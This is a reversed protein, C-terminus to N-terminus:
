NNVKYYKNNFNIPLSSLESERLIKKRNVKKNKYVFLIDGNKQMVINCNEELNNKDTVNILYFNSNDEVNINTLNINKFYCTFNNNLFKLISKKIIKLDIFMLNKWNKIKYIDSPNFKYEISITM